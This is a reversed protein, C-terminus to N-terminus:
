WANRPLLSACSVLVILAFISILDKDLFTKIPLICKIFPDSYLTLRFSKKFNCDEEYKLQYSDKNKKLVMKNDGWTMM